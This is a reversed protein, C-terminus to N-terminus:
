VNALDLKNLKIGGLILKSIFTNRLNQLNLIGAEIFSVQEFLGYIIKLYRNILVASYNIIDLMELLIKIILRKSSSQEGIFANYTDLEIDVDKLIFFKKIILREKNM